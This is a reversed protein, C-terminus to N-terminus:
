QMCDRYSYANDLSERIAPVTALDPTCILRKDSEVVSGAEWLYNYEAMHQASDEQM